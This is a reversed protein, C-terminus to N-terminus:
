WTLYVTGKSTIIEAFSHCCLCCTWCSSTLLTRSIILERKSSWRHHFPLFHPLFYSIYLSFFARFVFCCGQRSLPCVRKLWTNLCKIFPVWPIAWLHGRKKRIFLFIIIFLLFSSHISSWLRNATTLPAISYPAASLPLNTTNIFNDTNPLHSLELSSTLRVQATM